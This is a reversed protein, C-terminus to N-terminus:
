PTGKYSAETKKQSCNFFDPSFLRAFDIENSKAIAIGATKIQMKVRM